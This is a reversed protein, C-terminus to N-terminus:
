SPFLMSVEKDMDASRGWASILYALPFLNKSGDALWPLDYALSTYQKWDCRGKIPDYASSYLALRSHPECQGAVLGEVETPSNIACVSLKLWPFTTQLACAILGGRDVGVLLARESLRYVYFREVWEMAKRADTGPILPRAYDVMPHTSRLTSELQAMATNSEEDVGHLFVIQPFRIM